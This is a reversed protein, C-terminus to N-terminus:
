ESGRSKVTGRSSRRLMACSHFIACFGRIPVVTRLVSNNKVLLNWHTDYRACCCCCCSKWWPSSFSNMAHQDLLRLRYEWLSSLVLPLRPGLWQISLYRFIFQSPCVDPGRVSPSVSKRRSLVLKVLSTGKKQEFKLELLLEFEVLRSIYMAVKCEIAAM